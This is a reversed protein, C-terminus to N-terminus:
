TRTKPCDGEAIKQRTKESLFSSDDPIAVIDDNSVKYSYDVHIQYLVNLEPNRPDSQFEFKGDSSYGVKHGSYDPISSNETRSISGDKWDVSYDKGEQYYIKNGDADYSYVSTISDPTEYFHKEETGTLCFTEGVMEKVSVSSENESKRPLAIGALVLVAVVIVAILLIIKIKYYNSHRM